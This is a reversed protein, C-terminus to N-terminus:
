CLVGGGKKKSAQNPELGEQKKHVGGKFEGERKHSGKKKQSLRKEEKTNGRLVPQKLGGL